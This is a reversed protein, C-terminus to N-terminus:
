FSRLNPTRDMIELKARILHKGYFGLLMQM